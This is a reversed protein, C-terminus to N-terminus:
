EGGLGGWGMVEKSGEGWAFGTVQAVGSANPSCSFGGAVTVGISSSDALYKDGRLM